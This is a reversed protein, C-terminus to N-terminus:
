LSPAQWRDFIDAQSGMRELIIAGDKKNIKYVLLWDQMIRCERRGKFLGKLPRDLFEKDLPTEDILAEVVREFKEMDYRGSEQLRDMDIQFQKTFYPKLM